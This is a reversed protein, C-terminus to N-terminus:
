LRAMVDRTSDFLTRPDGDALAGPSFRAIECRDVIGLVRDLTESDVGRGALSARLQDRTLAHTDLDFRDGLYGVLARALEAHFGKVDDQKLLQEALKLRKKVLQSSRSMRAYGRDTQLRQRHGRWGFALGVTALSGVMMLNPWWPVDMPQPALATVDPEIYSIDSGLVKLGSASESAIPGGGSTAAGSATFTLAGSALKRYSKTQPDFYAIRLPPIEFKGDSQPLIPFRFTKTGRVSEGVVKADDKAEPALIRLGPIEEIKPADIMKVNGTGSVRVTLNIPEGNSTGTRDLTADMTFQGVGGTFEAPKGAEPLPLVRLTLPKSAVRVAQSSGFLDFVDRPPQAVEVNLAMPKLTADGATLPVLVVKELEAVGFAKGDITRREFDFRNAEFVKEAWFGDFSPLQAWAANSIQFRTALAIDVAIPEGVYASRRSPTVSLFLNGDLAMQRPPSPAGGAGGNMPSAQGQATKVVTIEIPQTSYTKGQYELRAAPITAKGLQKPELVYIFGVTAEKKMQGNVFSINTSQSSSRGVVDFGTMAPLVPQPVTALDEGAVSLVLQFGEGLGVTTRDVNATFQIEAARVEPTGTVLAVGAALVAAWARAHRSRISGRRV